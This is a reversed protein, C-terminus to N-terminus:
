SINDFLAAIKKSASGSGFEACPKPPPYESEVAAIIRQTDPDVLRNAGAEFTEHWEPIQVDEITICPTGVFYAEKQVGGSDTLILRANRELILMDLYSVPATMKIHTPSFVPPQLRQIALRTRPHVPFVITEKIQSFAELVSRLHHPNDTTSARHLTALLYAKPQLSLVSLIQSKTEAYKSYHLVADYMVDGTNHVGKTIGEAALNKVATETPCFLLSSLHDTLVRNVEEPITSDYSRLGAEVHALPLPLKAAALAGALTSNTDGYVIAWDPKERLLVEEIEMMMKGTQQAHSCSGVELNYAPPPLPLQEFFIQSLNEDYHQGTHLIIEQHNQRIEQSVMAAKIFQPRAGVISLIKM